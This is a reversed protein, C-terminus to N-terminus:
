GEKAPNSYADLRDRVELAERAIRSMYAVDRWPEAYVGLDVIKQLVGEMRGARENAAAFHNVIDAAMGLPDDIDIELHPCATSVLGMAQIWLGMSENAAALQRRLCEKYWGDGREICDIPADRGCKSCKDMM